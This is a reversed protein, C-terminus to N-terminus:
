TKSEELPANSLSSQLNQTADSLIQAPSDDVLSSREQAPIPQPVQVPAPQNKPSEKKSNDLSRRIARLRDGPQVKSEEM